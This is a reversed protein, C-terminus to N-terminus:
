KPTLGYWPRKSEKGPAKIGAVPSADIYGREVAWSFLKRIVEYLRNAAYDKGEDLLKDLVRLVDARTITDMKRHRWGGLEREIRRQTKQWDKHHRKAYRTIFAESVAGFSDAKPKEADLPEGKDIKIFM